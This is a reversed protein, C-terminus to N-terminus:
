ATAKRKHNAAGAATLVSIKCEPCLDMEFILATATNGAVHLWDKPLHYQINNRTRMMTVSPGFPIEAEVHCRDCTSVLIRKRTV